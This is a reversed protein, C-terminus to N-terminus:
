TENEQDEEVWLPMPYIPKPACGLLRTPVLVGGGWRMIHTSRALAGRIM